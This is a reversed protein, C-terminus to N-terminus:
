QPQARVLTRLHFSQKVKFIHRITNKVLGQRGSSYHHPSFILCLFSIMEAIDAFNNLLFATQIHSTIIGGATKKKKQSARCLWDEGGMLHAWQCDM